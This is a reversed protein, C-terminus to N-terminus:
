LSRCTVSAPATTVALPVRSKPVSCCDDASTARERVSLFLPVMGSATVAVIGLLLPKAKLVPKSVLDKVMLAPWCVAKSMFINVAVPPCFVASNPIMAVPLRVAGGATVSLPNMWGVAGTMAHLQLPPAKVLPWLVATSKPAAGLSTVKVTAFVPVPTSLREVTVTEGAAFKWTVLWGAEVTAILPLVVNVTRAKSAFRPLWKAVTVTALSAGLAGLKVMGTALWDVGLMAHLQLPPANVLPWLVATSKPVAGLSTVKVTAFM